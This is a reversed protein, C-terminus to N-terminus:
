VTQAHWPRSVQMDFIYRSSVLAQVMYGGACMTLNETKYQVIIIFLLSPDLRHASACQVAQLRV